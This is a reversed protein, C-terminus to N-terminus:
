SAPVGPPNEKCFNGAWCPSYGGRNRNGMVQAWIVDVGGAWLALPDNLWRSVKAAWVEKTKWDIGDVLGGITTESINTQGTKGSGIRCDPVDTFWTMVREIGRTLRTMTGSHTSGSRFAPNMPSLTVHVHLLYM